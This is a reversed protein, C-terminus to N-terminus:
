YSFSYAIHFTRPTVLFHALFPTGSDIFNRRFTTSYEEDFLNELRMSIRHRRAGDLFIRGSLDAISYDGSPM